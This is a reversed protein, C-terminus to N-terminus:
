EYVVLIGAGECEPCEVLRGDESEEDEVQGSGNCTGCVYEAEYFRTLSNGSDWADSRYRKILEGLM